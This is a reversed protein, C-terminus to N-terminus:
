AVFANSYDVVSIWSVPFCEFTFDLCISRSPTADKNGCNECVLFSARCTVNMSLPLSSLRKLRYKGPGM